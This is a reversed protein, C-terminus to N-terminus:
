PLQSSQQSKQIKRIKNTIYSLSRMKQEVETTTFKLAVAELTFDNLLYGEGHLYGQFDKVVMATIIELRPLRSKVTGAVEEYLQYNERAKTVATGIYERVDAEMKLPIKDVRRATGNKSLVLKNGHRRPPGSQKIPARGNSDLFNIPDGNCYAYANFGGMGFPSDFDPSNFRMVSCNYPRYGQGLLDCGSSADRREGNFGILVERSTLM